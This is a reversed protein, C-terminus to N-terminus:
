GLFLVYKGVAYVYLWRLATMPVSFAIVAVDHRRIDSFHIGAGIAVFCTVFFWSSLTGALAATAPSLLGMTTAAAALILGVIFKPFRTWLLRARVQEGVPLGRRTYLYVLILIVAPMLVNRASKVITAITGAGESYAYGVAISQATNSPVIGALFGTLMDGWGMAHAVAPLSILVLIDTMLAAGIATVIEREKAKIAPATAMIASIGCIGMGVGVLHGWRESVGISRAFWGSLYICFAISVAVVILATAGVSFVEILNLRAGLLVVGIYLCSRSAFRFGPECRTLDLPCLNRLALGMLIALFVYNLFFVQDPMLSSDMWKALAGLLFCLLLGPAVASAYEKWGRHEPPPIRAM